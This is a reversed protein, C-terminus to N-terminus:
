DLHPNKSTTKSGTCFLFFIIYPKFKIAYNSSDAKLQEGYNFGNMGLMLTMYEPIAPATSLGVDENTSASVRVLPGHLSICIINYGQAIKKDDLAFLLFRIM